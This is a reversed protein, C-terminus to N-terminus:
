GRNVLRFVGIGAIVVGVVALGVGSHTGRLVLGGSLGGIIMVVGIVINVIGRM